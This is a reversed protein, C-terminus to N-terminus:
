RAAVRLLSTSLQSGALQNDNSSLRRCVVLVRVLVCITAFEDPSLWEFRAMKPRPPRNALWNLLKDCLCINAFCFARCQADLGSAGDQIKGAGRFLNM